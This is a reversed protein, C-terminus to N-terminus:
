SIVQNQQNNGKPYMLHTTQVKSAFVSTQSRDNQYVISNHSERFLLYIQATHELKMFFSNSYLGLLCVLNYEM